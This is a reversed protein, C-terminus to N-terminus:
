PSIVDSQACILRFLLQRILLLHVLRTTNKRRREPRVSIFRELRAEKYEDFAVGLTRKSYLVTTGRRVRPQRHRREGKPAPKGGSRLSMRLMSSVNVWAGRYGSNIKWSDMAGLVMLSSRALVKLGSSNADTCKSPSGGFAAPVIGQSSSSGSVPPLQPPLL